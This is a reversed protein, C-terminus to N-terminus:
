PKFPSFPDATFSRPDHYGPLPLLLPFAQLCTHEPASLARSHRHPSMPHSAAAVSGLARYAVLAQAQIWVCPSPYQQAKLTSQAGPM